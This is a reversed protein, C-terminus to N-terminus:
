LLRTCISRNGKKQPQSKIGKRKKMNQQEKREMFFDFFGMNDTLPGTMGM